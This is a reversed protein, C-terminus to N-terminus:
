SALPLSPANNAITPLKTVADALELMHLRTYANLTLNIDSHRALKQAMAPAVGARALSTIFTTRLAHFDIVRGDGDLAPIGADLLDLRLMKAAQQWWTGPWILDTPLGGALFQQLMRATETPLPLTDIRRRKSISAQLTISPIAAAFDFSGATLQRLEGRRLGTRLAVLYLMARAPGALGRFVRKSNNTTTHLKEVEEDTLARRQLRPDEDENLRELGHTPDDHM